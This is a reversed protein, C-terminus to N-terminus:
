GDILQVLSILRNKHYGSYLLRGFKLIFGKISVESSRAEPTELFRFLLFGSDVFDWLNKRTFIELLVQLHTMPCM